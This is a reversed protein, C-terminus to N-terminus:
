PPRAIVSPWTAWCFLVSAPALLDGVPLAAIEEMTMTRM